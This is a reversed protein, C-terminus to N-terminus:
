DDQRKVFPSRFADEESVQCAIENVKECIRETEDDTLEWPLIADEKDHIIEDEFGYGMIGVSPDSPLLHVDVTVTQGRLEIDFQLRNSM